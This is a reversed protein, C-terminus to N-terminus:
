RPRLFSANGVIERFDAVQRHWQYRLLSGGFESLYSNFQCNEILKALFVGQLVGMKPGKRHASIQDRCVTRNVGLLPCESRLKAYTAPLM